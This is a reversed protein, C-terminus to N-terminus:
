QHGTYGRQQVLIYHLLMVVPKDDPKSEARATRLWVLLDTREGPIEEYSVSEIAGIGGHGFIKGGDLYNEDAGHALRIGIRRRALVKQGSCSTNSISYDSRAICGCCACRIFVSGTSGSGLRAGLCASFQDKPIFDSLSNLLGCEL